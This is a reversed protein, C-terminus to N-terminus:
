VLHVDDADDGDALPRECLPCWWRAELESGCADHRPPETDAVHEAGWAALMRIAGALDRGAATLEYAYRPPRELYRRALVLREHELHRLRRALINPAIGPVATTLDGFRRPGGLLAEVLLMTWRDGVRALAAGLPSSGTAETSM